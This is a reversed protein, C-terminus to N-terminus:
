PIKYINMVRYQEIANFMARVNEPPTEPMITNCPAFIYNGLEPKFLAAIEKVDRIVTEPSKNIFNSQIDLGGFFTIKGRYTESIDLLNMASTQLNGIVDLNIDIWEPILRDICGCSHMWVQMGKEHALDIMNAYAPKFYRIWSEPSIQLRDQMGWDDALYVGDVGATSALQICELTFAELDRLLYIFLEGKTAIDIWLQEMGYLMYMREYFTRWINMLVYSDPNDKVKSVAQQEYFGKHLKPITRDKYEEWGDINNIIPRAPHSGVGNLSTAFL